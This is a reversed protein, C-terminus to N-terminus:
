SQNTANLRNTRRSTKFISDAIIVMVEDGASATSDLINVAGGAVRRAKLHDVVLTEFDILCIDRIPAAAGIAQLLPDFWGAETWWYASKSALQLAVDFVKRDAVIVLERSVGPM